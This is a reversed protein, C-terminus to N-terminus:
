VESFLSMRRPSSSNGDRNVDLGAEFDGNESLGSSATLGGGSQEKLAQLIEEESVTRLTDSRRSSRRSTSSAPREPLSSGSLQDEFPAGNEEDRELLAQGPRHQNSIPDGVEKLTSLAEFNLRTLSHPSPATPGRAATSDALTRPLRLGTGESQREGLFEPLLLASGRPTNDASGPRSSPLSGGSGLFIGGGFFSGNRLSDDASRGRPTRSSSDVPTGVRSPLQLQELDSRCQSPLTYDSLLAAAVIGADVGSDAAMRLWHQARDSDEAVLSGRVLQRFQTSGPQIGATQMLDYVREASNIRGDKCLATLVREYLYPTLQVGDSQMKTLHAVADDTSGDRLASLIITSHTLDDARVGSAQLQTLWSQTRLSNISLRRSIPSTGTSSPGRHGASTRRLAMLEECLESNEVRLQHAERVARVRVRDLEAEVASARGEATAARRELSARVEAEHMERLTDAVGSNRRSGQASGRGLTPSGDLTVSDRRDQQQSGAAAAAAAAAAVVNAATAAANAKRSAAALNGNLRRQRALEQAQEDVDVQLQSCRATSARLAADAM